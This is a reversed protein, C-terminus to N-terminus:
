RPPLRRTGDLLILGVALLIVGVAFWALFENGTLERVNGATVLMDAIGAWVLVEAIQRNSM